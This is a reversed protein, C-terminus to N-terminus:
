WDLPSGGDTNGRNVAPQAPTAQVPERVIKEEKEQKGLGRILFYFRLAREVVHGQPQKTRKCEDKVQQLVEPPIVVGLPKMSEASTAGRNDHQGAPVRQTIQVSDLLENLAAAIKQSATM